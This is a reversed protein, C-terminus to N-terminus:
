PPPEKTRIKSAEIAFQAIQRLTAIEVPGPGTKEVNIRDLLIQITALLAVYENDQGDMIPHLKQYSDRIHPHSEVLDRARIASM